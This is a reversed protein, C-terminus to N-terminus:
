HSLTRKRFRRKLENKMKKRKEAPKEYFERQKLDMLIGDAIVKRSFKRILSDSTDGPQAKVYTMDILVGGILEFTGRSRNVDVWCM